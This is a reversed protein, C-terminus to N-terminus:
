EFLSVAAYCCCRCGFLVCYFSSPPFCKCCNFRNQLSCVFRKYQSVLCLAGTASGWSTRYVRQGILPKKMFCTCMHIQSLNFKVTLINSLFPKYICYISCTSHPHTRTHTWPEKIKYQHHVNNLTFIAKAAIFKSASRSTAKAEYEM